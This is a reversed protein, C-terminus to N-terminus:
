RPPLCCELLATKAERSAVSPDSTAVSDFVSWRGRTVYAPEYVGPVRSVVAPSVAGIEDDPSTCEPGTWTVSYGAAALAMGDYSPAGDLLNSYM